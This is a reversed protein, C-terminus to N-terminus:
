EGPPAVPGGVKRGRGYTLRGDKSYAIRNDTTYKNTYKNNRKKQQKNKKM